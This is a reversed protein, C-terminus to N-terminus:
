FDSRLKEGSAPSCKVGVRNMAYRYPSYQLLHFERGPHALMHHRFVHRRLGYLRGCLTCKHGPISLHHRVIHGRILGASTATLSCLSCRYTDEASAGDVASAIVKIVHHSEPIPPRDRTPKMEVPEGDSDGEPQEAAEACAPTPSKGPTLCGQRQKRDPKSSEDLLFGSSRSNNATQRGTKRRTTSTTGKWKLRALHLLLQDPLLRNDDRSLRSAHMCTTKYRDPVKAHVGLIHKRIDGMGHPSIASCGSCRFARRNSHRTVAVKYTSYYDMKTRLVALTNQDCIGNMLTQLASWSYPLDIVRELESETLSMLTSLRQEETAEEHPQIPLQPLPMVSAPSAPSYLLSPFEAGSDEGDFSRLIAAVRGPRETALRLLMQDPYLRWNNERSIRSAQCCVTLLDHGIRAHVGMVHRRADALTSPRVTANPRRITHFVRGCQCKYAVTRGRRMQRVLRYDSYARMKRMLEARQEPESCQDKLLLVLASESFPLSIEEEEDVGEAAEFHSANQGFHLQSTPASDLQRIQQQSGIGTRSTKHTVSADARGSSPRKQPERLIQSLASCAPKSRSRLVKPVKVSEDIPTVVRSSTVEEHIRIAGSLPHESAIHADIRAADTSALGCESCHNLGFRLCGEEGDKGSCEAQHSVFAKWSMACFQCNPCILSSAGSHHNASVLLGSAFSDADSHCRDVHQQVALQSPSKVLCGPVRCHHLLGSSASSDTSFHGVLHAAIDSLALDAFCYPCPMPVAEPGESHHQSKLHQILQDPQWASFALCHGCVFCGSASELACVTNFLRAQREQQSLLIARHRKLKAILVIASLTDVQKTQSATCNLESLGKITQYNM